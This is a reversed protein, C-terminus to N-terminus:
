VIPLNPYNEILNEIPGMLPRPMNNWDAWFWGECKEPEMATPVGSKYDAIMFITVFHRDKDAFYDNTVTWFRVNKIEIGAEEMAERKACEEFSEKFELHGGPFHYTGAGHEAKRKGLLVKGDKLVVVGVGVKPRKDESM